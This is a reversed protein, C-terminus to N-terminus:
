SLAPLFTFIHFPSVAMASISAATVLSSYGHGCQDDDISGYGGSAGGRRGGEGVPGAAGSAGIAAAGESLEGGEGRFFPGAEFGGDRRGVAGGDVLADAAKEIGLARVGAGPEVGNEVPAENVLGTGDGAAGVAEVDLAVFAKVATLDFVAGGGTFEVLEDPAILDRDIFM